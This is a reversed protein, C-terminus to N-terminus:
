RRKPKSINPERGYWPRVLTWRKAKSKKVTAAIVEPTLVGVTVVGVVPIDYLYGVTNATILGTRVATFPGPGRVVIIRKIRNLKIKKAKLVSDVLRLLHESGHYSILRSKSIQLAGHGDFLWVQLRGPINTQLVLIM